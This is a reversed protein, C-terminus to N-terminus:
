TGTVFRIGNRRYLHPHCVFSNSNFSASDWGQSSFRDMYGANAFSNKCIYLIVGIISLSLLFLCLLLTVLLSPAPAIWRKPQQDPISVGGFLAPCIWMYHPLPRPGYVDTFVGWELLVVPVTKWVFDVCFEIILGWGATLVGMLCGIIFSWFYQQKTTFEPEMKDYVFNAYCDELWKIHKNSSTEDQSCVSTSGQISNSTYGDSPESEMSGYVYSPEYRNSSENHDAEYQLDGLLPGDSKKYFLTSETGTTSDLTRQTSHGAAIDPRSNNSQHDPCLKPSSLVSSIRPQSPLSHRPIPKYNRSQNSMDEKSHREASYYNNEVDDSVASVTHSRAIKKIKKVKVHSPPNTNLAVCLSGRTSSNSVARRRLHYPAVHTHSKTVHKRQHHAGDKKNNLARSDSRPDDFASDTNDDM